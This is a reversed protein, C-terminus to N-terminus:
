RHSFSVPKPNFHPTISNSGNSGTFDVAVFMKMELGGQLFDMFSPLKQITTGSFDLTGVDKAKGRYHLIKIPQRKEAAEAFQKFSILVHGIPDHSSNADWDIVNIRFQVDDNVGLLTNKLQFPRWVPDLNNKVIETQYVIDFAGDPRLRCFQLYPDSKGFRHLLARLENPTQPTTIPSRFIFTPPFWDKKALKVGRAQINALSVGSSGGLQEIRIVIKSRPHPRQNVELPMILQRGPAGVISALQTRSCGLFDQSDLNCREVSVGGDFDYVFFELDQRIEFHWIVDFFKSFKPSLNNMKVETRGIEAFAPQTSNKMKLVVFPDSKSFTDKDILNQCEIFIRVASSCNDGAVPAGSAQAQM